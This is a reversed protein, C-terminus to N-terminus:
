GHSSNLRTSKRDSREWNDRTGWNYGVASDPSTSSLYHQNPAQLSAIVTHSGFLIGALKLMTAANQGYGHLALVLLPNDPLVEPERVLCRCELNTSFTFEAPM